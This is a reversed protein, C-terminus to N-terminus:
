LDDNLREERERLMRVLDERIEIGKITGKPDLIVNLENVVEDLHAGNFIAEAAVALAWKLDLEDKVTAGRLQELGKM